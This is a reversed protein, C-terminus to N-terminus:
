GVHGLYQFRLQGRVVIDIKENEHCFCVFHRLREDEYIPSTDGYIRALLESNIVENISTSLERKAWVHPEPREGYPPVRSVAYHVIEGSVSYLDNPTKLLFRIGEVSDLVSELRCLPGISSQYSPTYIETFTNMM